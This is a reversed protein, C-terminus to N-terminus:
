SASQFLTAMDPRVVAFGCLVNMNIVTGQDTMSDGIQIRCPIDGKLRITTESYPAAGGTLPPPLM